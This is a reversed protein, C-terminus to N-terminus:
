FETIPHSKGRKRTSIFRYIHGAADHPCYMMPTYKVVSGGENLDRERERERERERGGEREWRERGGGCACVPPL